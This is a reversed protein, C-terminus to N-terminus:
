HRPRERQQPHSPEPGPAAGLRPAFSACGKHGPEQERRAGGGPAGGPAGHPAAPPGPSFPQLRPSAKGAEAEEGCPSRGEGAGDLATELAPWLAKGFFLSRGRATLRGPVRGRATRKQLVQRHPGSPGSGGGHSGAPGGPAWVSKIMTPPTPEGGSRARRLGSPGKSPTLEKDRM